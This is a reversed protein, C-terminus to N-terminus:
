VGGVARPSASLVSGDVSSEPASAAVARAVIDANKIDLSGNEITIGGSQDYTSHM